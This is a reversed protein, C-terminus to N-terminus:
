ARGEFIINFSTEGTRRFHSTGAETEVRRWQMETDQAAPALCWIKEPSPSSGSHRHRRYQRPYEGLEGSGM